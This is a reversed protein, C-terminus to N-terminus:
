TLRLSQTRRRQLKLGLLLGLGVLGMFYALTILRIHLPPAVGEVDINQAVQFPKFQRNANAQPAIEVEIRHPAGDFFQQQWAFTGNLDPIGQYAFAAWKNELQTTTVKLAVDTVPKFTKADMVSVQLKAPQGVTASSDGSLQVALGEANLKSPKDSPPAEETGHSMAMSGHSQSFEASVNVFLLAAIAVVTVGSLLLRVRQPAIEGPQIKQGGGIVWGGGLGVAFLITALIGLNRYKVWNELVSLSLTEQIPAFANAAAPTVNLRLRYEGRIPLMQQIKLEGKPALAEMELLTSGEVIPFDTTFWPNKPPTLITLHVRANELAQGSRDLAQLTLQVPAKLNSSEAEFPKIQGLVPSTTLKVSSQPLQALGVWGYLLVGMLCAASILAFRKFRPMIKGPRNIVVGGFQIYSRTAASLHPITACRICRM